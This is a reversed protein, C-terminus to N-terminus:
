RLLATCQVHIEINLSFKSIYNHVNSLLIYKFNNHMRLIFCYHFGWLSNIQIFILCLDRNHPLCRRFVVWIFLEDVPPTFWYWLPTPTPYEGGGEGVVYKWFNPPCVINKGRSKQYINLFLKIHVMSAIVFTFYFFNYTNTWFHLSIVKEAQRNKNSFNGWFVRV